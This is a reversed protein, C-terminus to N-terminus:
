HLDHRADHDLRFAVYALEALDATAALMAAEGDSFRYALGDRVSGLVQGHPRDRDESLSAIGRAHDRFVTGRYGDVGKSVYFRDHVAQIKIPADMWETTTLGAAGLLHHLHGLLIQDATSNQLWFIDQTYYRARAQGGTGCVQHTEVCHGFLFGLAYDVGFLVHLPPRWRGGGCAPAFRDNTSTPVAAEATWRARDGSDLSELATDPYVLRNRLEGEGQMQASQACARVVADPGVCVNKARVPFEM